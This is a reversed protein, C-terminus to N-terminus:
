TAQDVRRHRRERPRMLDDGVEKASGVLAACVAVPAVIILFVALFLNFIARQIGEM